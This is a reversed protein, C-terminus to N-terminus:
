AAESETTMACQERLTAITGAYDGPLTELIAIADATRYWGAKHARCAATCPKHWHVTQGSLHVWGPGWHPFSFGAKEWAAKARAIGAAGGPYDGPRPDGFHARGAPGWTKAQQEQWQDVRDTGGTLARVVDHQSQKHGLVGDVLGRQYDDAHDREAARYGDRYAMAALRAWQDREDSLALVHRLVREPPVSPPATTMKRNRQSCTPDAWTPAPGNANVPELCRGARAAVPRIGARGRSRCPALRRDQLVAARRGAILECVKTRGVELMEAATEVRVAVKPVAVTEVLVDTVTFERTQATSGIGFLGDLM